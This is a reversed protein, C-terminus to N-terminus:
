QDTPIPVAHKRPPLTAEISTQWDGSERYHVIIEVVHNITLVKCTTMCFLQELPLRATEIQQGRAKDCTAGKLRNHDVLGGVVYVKTDDMATIERDSDATLYVLDTAPFCAIYPESRIDVEWRDMSVATIDTRLLDSVGCFTLFCPAASKKVASYCYMLQRKLSAREKGTLQGEFECDIVLRPSVARRRLWEERDSKFLLPPKPVGPLQPPRQAKRQKRLLDREPQAALWEARKKAKKAQTKSVTQVEEM